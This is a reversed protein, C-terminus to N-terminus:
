ASHGCLSPLRWCGSGLVAQHSRSAGVAPWNGKVSGEAAPPPGLDRKNGVVTSSHSTGRQLIPTSQPQLYAGLPRVAPGTRVPSQGLPSAGLSLIPLGTPGSFCPANGPLELFVGKNWRIAAWGQKGAPQSLSASARVGGGRVSDKGFIIMSDQSKEM